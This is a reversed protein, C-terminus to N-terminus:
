DNSNHNVAHLQIGRGGNVLQPWVESKQLSNIQEKLQLLFNWLFRSINLNHLLRTPFTSTKLLYYFNDHVTNQLTWSLIQYKYIIPASFSLFMGTFIQYSEQKVEPMPSLWSRVPNLSNLSYLHSGLETFEWPRCMIIKFASPLTILIGPLYLYTCTHYWTCSCRQVTQLNNRFKSTSCTSDPLGASETEKKNRDPVISEPATLAAPCPWQRWKETGAPATQWLQNHNLAEGAIFLVTFWDAVPPQGPNFYRYITLM